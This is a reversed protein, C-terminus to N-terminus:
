INTINNISHIIKLFFIIIFLLALISILVWLACKLIYDSKSIRTAIKSSLKVNANATSTEKGIHILTDRQKEMEEVTMRASVETELAVRGIGGIQDKQSNLNDVNSIHKERTNENNVLKEEEKMKTFLKAEAKERSFSDEINFFKRRM